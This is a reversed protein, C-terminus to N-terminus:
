SSALADVLRDAGHLLVDVAPWGTEAEIAECARQGEEAGVLM